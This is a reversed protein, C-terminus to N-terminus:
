NLLWCLTPSSAPPSSSSRDIISLAHQRVHFHVVELSEGAMRSSLDDTIVVVALGHKPWQMDVVLDGGAVADM